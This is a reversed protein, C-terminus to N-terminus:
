KEDASGTQGIRKNSRVMQLDTYERVSDLTDGEDSDGPSRTDEDLILNHNEASKRKRSRPKIENKTPSSEPIKALLQLEIGQWECFSEDTLALEGISIFDTEVEAPAASEMGTQPKKMRRKRVPVPFEDPIRALLPLTMGQWEHLTEDALALEGIPVLDLEKEAPLVEKREKKTRKIRKKKVPAPTGDPVQTLVPLNLGHWIDIPFRFSRDLLAAGTVGIGSLLLGVVIFVALQLAIQKRSIEPKDPVKPSDIVMYSQRMNSEAQASALQASEVNDLAKSYRTIAQDLKSQLRNIELEEIDPREGKIPMPHAIMFNYLEARASDVDVKYKESLGSFFKSAALSDTLDANIKWQVYTEIVSNVLQYAVSPQEHKAVIALQTDGLSSAWLSSRVQELTEEVEAEGGSMRAELDTKQIVARAFSDTQNLEYIEKVTAASPTTWSFDAGEISSLKALLSEGQVSIVGKAMYMPKLRYFYLGSAIIMILIPMLYLWRHRFYSELFRLIVLRFM